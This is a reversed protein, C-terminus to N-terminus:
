EERWLLVATANDRGSRTNVLDIFRDVVEERPVTALIEEMENDELYSHLGDTCLLLAADEQLSQQFMDAELDLAVGLARLRTIFTAYKQVDERTLMGQRVLQDHITHDATVRRLQRNHFHYARCDGVSAIYLQEAIVLAAAATVWTSSHGWQHYIRQNATQFAARLAPLPDLESAAYYTAIVTDAALRAAVEGVNPGGRGDCVVFLKGPLAEPSRDGVAYYDENISRVPGTDSRAHYAIKM